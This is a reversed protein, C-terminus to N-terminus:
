KEESKFMKLLVLNLILSFFIIFFLYLFSYIMDKGSIALLAQNLILSFIIVVYTCFKYKKLNLKESNSYLLFGCSFCIIFIYLPSIIRKNLEERIEHIKSNNSNLKKILWLTNRESFKLTKINQLQYKSFDFITSKFNIINIDENTKEHTTGDYLKLYTAEGSSIVEGKKALITRTKEYIFVGELNGKQDNSQVYITLGKLPSNFNNEKVLSNIVSFEASALIARGKASSIPTIFTSLLLHFFFAYLGIILTVNIIQTKSIGSLWYINLENSTELKSYLFFLSITFSLLFINNLIKPYNFILYKGYVSIPNGLETILELLKAAQTMWILISLSFTILLFLKLYELFIYRFIKNKVM